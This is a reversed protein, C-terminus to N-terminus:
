WSTATSIIFSLHITWSVVHKDLRPIVNTSPPSGTKKIKKVFKKLKESVSSVVCPASIKFSKKTIKELDSCVGIHIYPLYQTFRVFRRARPWIKGRLSPPMCTLSSRVRQPKLPLVQTPASLLRSRLALHLARQLWPKTDTMQSTSNEPYVSCNPFILRSQPEHLAHIVQHPCSAHTWWTIRLPTTQRLELSPSLLCLNSQTQAVSIPLQASLRGSFRLPVRSSTTSTTCHRSNILVTRNTGRALSTPTSCPISSCQKSVEWLVQQEPLSLSPKLMGYLRGIPSLFLEVPYPLDYAPQIELWLWPLNLVLPDEDHKTPNKGEIKHWKRLWFNSPHRFISIKRPACADFFETLNKQFLQFFKETSFFSLLTFIKPVVKVYSIM